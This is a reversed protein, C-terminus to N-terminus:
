KKYFDIYLKLAEQFPKTYRRPRKQVDKWVENIDVFRQEVIEQTDAIGRKYKGVFLYHIMKLRGTVVDFRGIQRLPVAINLEEKLERNAAHAYSEDVDVHGGVSSTWQNRYRGFPPRKCILLEGHKNFLFIHVARRWLGRQLAQSKTGVTVVQDDRDVLPYKTEQKM